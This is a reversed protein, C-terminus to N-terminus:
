IKIFECSRSILNTFLHHFLIFLGFNTTFFIWSIDYLLFDLVIDFRWKAFVIIKIRFIDWFSALLLIIKYFIFALAYFRVLRWCFLSLARLDMLYVNESLGRCLWDTRARLWYAKFGVVNLYWKLWSINTYNLQVFCFSVFNFRVRWLCVYYFTWDVISILYFLALFFAFM